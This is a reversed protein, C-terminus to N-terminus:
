VAAGIPASVQSRWRGEAFAALLKKARSANLRSLCSAAGFFDNLGVIHQLEGSSVCSFGMSWDGFYRQPIPERIILTPRIHRPDAQIAAYLKDVAEPHGELVQFFTGESYLLMGTVDALENARRSQQLLETLEESGFDRTAVSTYILQILSSM